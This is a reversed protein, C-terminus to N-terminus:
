ARNIESDSFLNTEGGPGYFSERQKEQREAERIGKTAQKEKKNKNEKEKGEGEETNKKRQADCFLPQCRKRSIKIENQLMHAVQQNIAKNRSGRKTEKTQKGIGATRARTKRLALMSDGAMRENFRDREKVEDEAETAKRDGERKGEAQEDGEEGGGIVRGEETERECREAAAGETAGEREDTEEGEEEAVM